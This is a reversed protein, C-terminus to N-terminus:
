FPKFPITVDKLNRLATIFRVKVHRVRRTHVVLRRLQLMEKSKRVNVKLKSLWDCELDFRVYAFGVPWIGVHDIPIPVNENLVLPRDDALLSHLVFYIPEHLGVCLATM